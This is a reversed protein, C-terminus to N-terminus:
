LKKLDANLNRAQNKFYLYFATWFIAYVIIAIILILLVGKITFSIWGITLAIILYLILVTFFHLITQQYLKLKRIEFYSPAVTFFWGCLIFGISNKFFLSGEIMEIGGFLYLLNTTLVAVFSGFFIGLMSRFLMKKM